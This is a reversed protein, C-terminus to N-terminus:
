FSVLPPHCRRPAPQSVVGCPNSGRELRIYGDEGWDAAQVTSAMSRRCVACAIQVLPARATCINTSDAHLSSNTASATQSTTQSTSLLLQRLLRLRFHLRLRLLRALVAAAARLRQAYFAHGRTAFSGIIRATAQETDVGPHLTVDVLM